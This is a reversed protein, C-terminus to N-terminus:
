ETLGLKNSAVHSDPSTQREYRIEDLYFTIPGPNDNKGVSWAFGGSIKSLDVGTLDIEYQKWSSSLTVPGIEVTGTDPQPGRIGGVKFTAIREGGKAGRAWFTLRTMGQLNFGRAIEGWNGRPEQWYIGAWKNGQHSFGSYIVRICTPGDAPDVRSGEDIFIDSSDGMWGSAAYHNANSGKDAYIYFLRRTDFTLGIGRSRPPPGELIVWQQAKREEQDMVVMAPKGTMSDNSLHDGVREMYVPAMAQVASCM